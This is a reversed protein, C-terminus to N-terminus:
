GDFAIKKAIKKGEERFVNVNEKRGGAVSYM